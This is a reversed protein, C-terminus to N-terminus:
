VRLRLLIVADCGRCRGAPPVVAIQWRDHELQPGISAVFTPLHYKDVILEGPSQVRDTTVSDDRFLPLHDTVTGRCRHPTLALRCSCASPPAM